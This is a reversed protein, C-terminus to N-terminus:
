RHGPSFLKVGTFEQLRWLGIQRGHRKLWKVGTFEPHQLPRNGANPLAGASGPTKIHVESLPCVYSTITADDVLAAVLADPDIAIALSALPKRADIRLPRDTTSALDAPPERNAYINEPHV